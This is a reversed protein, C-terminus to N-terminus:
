VPKKLKGEKLLKLLASNQSALGKYGAIGNAAAIKKRYSFSNEEGISRLADVISRGAYTCAGFYRETEPPADPSLYKATKKEFEDWHPLIYEPCNKSPCFYKHTYLNEVGLGFRKLLWAALAACTEESEPDKGICEIAVCDLNGGVFGNESKDPRRSSADGAHWGREDLALNQWIESKWVYFHVVAGSMHCNPWTARTYQEAPDTLPSTQIDGTNHIVVGRAEGSGEGLKKCPKMPEGKRCWAAVDRKARAGDPIIKEKVTLTRGGISAKYTRDPKLYVSM